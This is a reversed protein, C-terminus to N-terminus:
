NQKDITSKIFATFLPHPRMPFSKFEPHAQTAVFFPHDSVEILEVLNGDSTTGSIVFGKEELQERYTNNFEYRHRHRESIETEGYIEYAKSDKKLVCPYAGLRMTGGMDDVGLLERLKYIM